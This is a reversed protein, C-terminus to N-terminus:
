PLANVPGPADGFMYDEPMESGGEGVMKGGQAEDEVVPTKDLWKSLDEDEDIEHAEPLETGGQGIMRPLDDDEDHEEEEGDSIVTPLDADDEDNEDAPPEYESASDDITTDGLPAVRDNFPHHAGRAKPTAVSTATTSDAPAGTESPGTDKMVLPGPSTAAATPMSPNRGIRGWLKDRAEKAATSMSTIDQANQARSVTPDVPNGIRSLFSDRAMRVSVDTGPATEAAPQPPPAAVPYSVAMRDHPEVLSSPPMPLRPRRAAPTPTQEIMPKIIAAPARQAPTPTRQALTPTREITPKRALTAPARQAPTSTRNGTPVDASAASRAPAPQPAPLATPTNASSTASDIITKAWGQFAEETDVFIRDFFHPLEKKLEDAMLDNEAALARLYEKEGATLDYDAIAAVLKTLTGQATRTTTMLRIMLPRTSQATTKAETVEEELRENQKRLTKILEKAKALEAEIKQVDLKSTLLPLLKGHQQGTELSTSPAQAWSDLSALTSASMLFTPTSSAAPVNTEKIASNGMAAKQKKTVPSAESNTEKERLRKSQRTQPEEDDESEKADSPRQANIATFGTSSPAIINKIAETNVSKRAAQAESEVEQEDYNLTQVQAVLGHTVPEVDPLITPRKTPLGERMGETGIMHHEGCLLVYKINKTEHDVLKAAQGKHVYGARLVGRHTFVAPWAKGREERTMRSNFIAAVWADSLDLNNPPYSQLKKTIDKVESDYYFDANIPLGEIWRRALIEDADLTTLAPLADKGKTTRARPM